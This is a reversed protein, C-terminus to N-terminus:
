VFRKRNFNSFFHFSIIDYKHVYDAKFIPVKRRKLHTQEIFNNSSSNFHIIADYGLYGDEDSDLGQVDNEDKKLSNIIPHDPSIAIFTVGFIMEPRTTFVKKLIM